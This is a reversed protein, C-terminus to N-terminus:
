SSGRRRRRPPPHRETVSFRGRKADGPTWHIGELLEAPPVSMADALKILTDIRAIRRGHELLSVETRHLSARVGLEEQSLDARRRCRALNQGFRIAVEEPRMQKGPRAVAGANRAKHETQCVFGQM